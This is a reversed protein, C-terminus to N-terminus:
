FTWRGSSNELRKTGPAITGLHVLSPDGALLHRGSTIEPKPLASPKQSLGCDQGTIQLVSEARAQKYGGSHRLHKPIRKNFWKKSRDQFVRSSGFPILQKICIHVCVCACVRVCVHVCVCLHAGHQINRIELDMLSFLQKEASPSRSRLQWNGQATQGGALNQPKRQWKHSMELLWAGRGCACACVRRGKECYKPALATCHSLSLPFGRLDDACTILCCLFFPCGQAFAM